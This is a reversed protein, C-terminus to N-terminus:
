KIFKNDKLVQYLIFALRNVVNEPVSSDAAHILEHLLTEETQSKSMGKKIEITCAEECTAGMHVVDDDIVKPFSIKYTHGGVKIKKPIKM